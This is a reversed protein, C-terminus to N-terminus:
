TLSFCGHGLHSYRFRSRAFEADRVDVKRFHGVVDRVEEAELLTVLHHVRKLHAEM